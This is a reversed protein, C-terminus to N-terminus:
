PRPAPTPDARALIAAALPRLIQPMLYIPFQALAFFLFTSEPVHAGLAAILVGINRHGTAYALTFRDGRAFPALAAMGAALGVLSVGFVAALFGAVVMPRQLAAETVGDMAAVAFVAYLVVGIGDLSHRRAALRAPGAVFRLLIACLIAGGILIALRLFLAFPDLPVAAGAILDVLYPSVLPALLTTVVTASLILTPEFGLLIAIAPASLIPPAAGMLALGLVLGPDLNERGILTVAGGILLPPAIVLWGLALALKGRRSVVRRVQALDARAFTLVLFMFICFALLPRAAAAFQPVALGLVIAAVFGQTGYRGLFALFDLLRGMFAPVSGPDAAPTLM